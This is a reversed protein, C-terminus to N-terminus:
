AEPPDGACSGGSLSLADQDRIIPGFRVAIAIPPHLPKDLGEKRFDPFELLRGAM